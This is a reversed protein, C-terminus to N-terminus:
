NDSTVDISPSVDGPSLSFDLKAEAGQQISVPKVQAAYGKLSAAISSACISTYLKYTGDKKTYTISGTNADVRVGRLPAGTDSDVVIGEVLGTGNRSPTLEFDIIQQRPFVAFKTMFSFNYGDASVLITANGPLVDISYFGDSSLATEGANATIIANNIRVGTCADRIIGSMTITAPPAKALVVTLTIPFLPYVRYNKIIKSAYGAATVTITAIGAPSPLLFNGDRDYSIAAGGLDTLLLADQIGDGSGSQIVRGRVYGTRTSSPSLGLSTTAIKGPTALIGL